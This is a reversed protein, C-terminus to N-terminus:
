SYIRNLVERTKLGVYGTGKSLGLPKLIDDGYKEQFESVAKLTLGFFNGTSDQTKPFSGEWKLCEQLMKVDKDNTMGWFLDRSFFYKPKQPEVKDWVLNALDNFWLSGLLRKEFWDETIIRRGGLAQSEGWSDQILVARQGQYLFHANPLIAVAHGYPPNDRLITPTDKNWEDYHFRVGILVPKSDLAAASDITNNLWFYNEPKYIRGITEFSPLTRELALNVKAETDFESDPLLDEFIAGYERFLDAANGFWMGEAPKNQRRPYLWSGAMKKFRHEELYNNIAGILSCAYSVCSSTQTQNSVKVDALMQQNEPKQRWVEWDIWQPAKLTLVEEVRWDKVKESQPRPDPLLGSSIRRPQRRFINFM